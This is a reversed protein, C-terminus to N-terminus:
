NTEEESVPLQSTCHPCRTAALSIESACFPCTKTTVEEEGTEEEKQLKNLGKVLLFIVFAIVVFSIVANVFSGYAIVAVGAERAEALTAFSSGDLTFFLNSFDLGGIFLSLIPTIIDNVLSGVIAGFAAGIIVGVALEMANGRAIFEKFEKLM